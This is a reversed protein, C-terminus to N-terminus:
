RFGAKCLHTLTCVHKPSERNVASLITIRIMIMTGKYATEDNIDRNETSAANKM